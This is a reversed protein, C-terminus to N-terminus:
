KMPHISRWYGRWLPHILFIGCGALAAYTNSLYFYVAWTIEKGVWYRTLWRFCEVDPNPRAAERERLREAVSAHAFSFYVALSGIAEKGSHGTWWWVSGLVLVVVTHEFHWTRPKYHWNRLINRIRRWIGSVGDKM